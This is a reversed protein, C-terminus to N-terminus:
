SFNHIGSAYYSITSDSYVYLSASSISLMQGNESSVSISTFGAYGDQADDDISDLYLVIEM